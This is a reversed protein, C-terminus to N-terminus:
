FILIATCQYNSIKIRFAVWDHARYFFSKIRGFITLQTFLSLTITFKNTGSFIESFDYRFRNFFSGFKLRLVRLIDCREMAM